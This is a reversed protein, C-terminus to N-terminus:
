CSSRAAFPRQDRPTAKAMARDLWGAAEKLRGRADDIAALELCADVASEDAKLMATLRAVAADSRGQDVEVRALM